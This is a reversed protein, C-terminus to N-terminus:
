LDRYIVFFTQTRSGYKSYYTQIYEKLFTQLEKAAYSLPVKANVYIHTKSNYNEISFTIEDPIAVQPKETTVLVIPKAKVGISLELQNKFGKGTGNMPSVFVEHVQPVLWYGEVMEYPQSLEKSASAVKEKFSLSESNNDLMSQLQKAIMTNVSKSIRKKLPELVPRLIKPMDLSKIAESSCIKQFKIKADEENIVVKIAAEKTLKITGDLVMRVQMPCNLSGNLKINESLFSVENKLKVKTRLDMIIDCFFKDKEFWFNYSYLDVEYLLQSSVYFTKDVWKFIPTTVRDIIGKDEEKKEKGSLKMKFEATEGTLLPNPFQQYFARKLYRSKLVLPIQIISEPLEPLDIAAVREPPRENELPCGTLVLAILVLTILQLLKM